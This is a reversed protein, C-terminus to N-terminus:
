GLGFNAYRRGPRYGRRSTLWAQARLELQALPRPHHQATLTRLAWAATAARAAQLLPRTDKALASGIWAFEVLDLAAWARAAFLGGFNAEVWEFAELLFIMTSPDLRVEAPPEPWGIAAWLAEIGPLFGWGAGVAQLFEGLDTAEPECWCPTDGDAHALSSRVEEDGAFAALDLHARTILCGSGLCAPCDAPDGWTGLLVQRGECTPCTGRGSLGARQARLVIEVVEASSAGQGLREERRLAEDM